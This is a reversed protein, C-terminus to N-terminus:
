RDRNMPHGTWALVSSKYGLPAEMNEMEESAFLGVDRHEDGHRMGVFDEVFCGYTVIFVHQGPLVEYVWSDLIEEVEARLNLEEQIERALCAEPTEGPELRGGPLEWEDRDNKLLVARGGALIVGKVSVPLRLGTM